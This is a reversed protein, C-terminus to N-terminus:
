AMFGIGAAPNPRFSSPTPIQMESPSITQIREKRPNPSFGWILLIISVTLIIAALALRIKKM